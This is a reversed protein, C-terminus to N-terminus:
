FSYQAPQNEEGDAKQDEENDPDSFYDSIIRYATAYVKDSESEQLRELYDLGDNEEVAERLEDLREPCCTSVTNLLAYLTELANNLLDVNSQKLADCLAPVANDQLLTLIQAATGGQALNAVAWSAEFQCKFDGSRLVEIIFPMIGADIVAQIQSNTGAIINSILWCCEKVVTTSKSRESLPIIEDLTNLDVVCQTLEDNGTSMNGLVRLAPAVMVDSDRLFEIVHPLVGSSRALSIQEDPGDTLYSVAWCADQKVQRDPYSILKALGKSLRELIHLPAHPNKHRCMNSFAWALTRACSVHLKDLRDVLAMLADVGGCQIVYDRLQASDGAINAVAWLAQEALGDNPSQTLQILPLTAGAEVAAVTQESTGSVVNTLAWSAEFRVKDDKLAEVLANVLGCKIVEDVPPNKSRSLIRRLAEFCQRMQDLTPNNSLIKVIEENTLRSVVAPASKLDLDSLEGEEDEDVLQNRRKMMLDAGKQKRIEVSSENRRRRMDEHRAVNKYQKLRAAEENFEATHVNDGQAPRLAM